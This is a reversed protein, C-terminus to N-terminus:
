KLTALFYIMKKMYDLNLVLAFAFVIIMFCYIVKFTKRKVYM